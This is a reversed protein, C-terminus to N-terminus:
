ENIAGDGDADIPGGDGDVAAENPRNSADSDASSAPAGQEDEFGAIGGNKLNGVHLKIAGTPVKSIWSDWVPFNKRFPREFLGRLEATTLAGTKEATAIQQVLETLFASLILPSLGSM